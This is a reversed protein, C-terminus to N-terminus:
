ADEKLHGAMRIALAGITLTPNAYGSTPFVSCSNVYLNSVGHVRCDADVVGRRPDDSMRTTGNHHKGQPVREPIDFDDHATYSWSRGVGMRGLERALTASAVRATRREMDTLRWDLGVRRKGFRDTEGVPLVRSDPNPMCEMSLWPGLWDREILDGRTGLVENLVANTAGDLDTLLNAVEASLFPPAQGARAGRYLRTAARRGPSAGGPYLHFIFNGVEERRLLEPSAALVNQIGGLELHHEETYLRLRELVGRGLLTRVIPRIGVHDNFFRGVLDNGNGLGQPMVRNSNLLLRPIEIGGAALVFTRARVDFSPGDICSVKAETVATADDTTELETVNCNLLVRLGPATRLRDEYAFGFATPPSLLTVLNRLHAPDPALAEGGLRGAWYGFDDPRDTQLEFYPLARPYHRAIEDYAIPWGSHPIWSREEFDFPTYFMCYGSWHNTTGGLFRLRADVLPTYPFGLDPGEYLEQTAEDYILEGSELLVVDRASGALELALIIGAPGGGVICIDTEVAEGDVRERGDSIV